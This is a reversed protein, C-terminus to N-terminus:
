FKSILEHVIQKITTINVTYSFSHILQKHLLTKNDSYSLLFKQTSSLSSFMRFTMSFITMFTSKWLLSREDINALSTWTTGPSMAQSSRSNITSLGLSTAFYNRRRMQQTENFASFPRLDIM